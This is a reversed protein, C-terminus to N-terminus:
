SNRWLKNKHKLGLALSGFTLLGLITSPEPIKNSTVSVGGSYQGAGESVAEDFTLSIGIVGEELPPVCCPFVDSDIVVNDMGETELLEVDISEPSGGVDFALEVGFISGSDITVQVDHEPLFDFELSSDLRYETIGVTTNDDNWTFNATVPVISSEYPPNALTNDTFAFESLFEGNATSILAIEAPSFEVSFTNNPDTIDVDEIFSNTGNSFGLSGAQAPTTAITIVASITSFSAIGLSALKQLLHFKNM